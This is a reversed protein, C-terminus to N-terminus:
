LSKFYSVTLPIGKDLSISPEWDLLKKALTIDPQRVKPDDEPLEEYVIESNSKAIEKVMIAIEQITKEDPNGLNMVEGQIGDTFMAKMIGSIMDSVYCFSRTQTGDGYVTLPLNGLAQTILNSVVRGDDPQMKPGYTNFIRVIRADVDYTRVYLMTLAEGFRKSEDYVSRIGNPNVNGFYSEPQPSVNPDGYVESTSAFLFRAIHKKALEILNHTGTSNALMTELPKNIYSSLSNKNPSAPSALHFIYDIKPFDVLSDTIDKTIDLEKFHFHPNQLFEEINKKAGTILNDVCIVTYDKQLLQECLHSGIFGAGGAVLVIRM